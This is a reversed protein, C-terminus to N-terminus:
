GHHSARLQNSQQTSCLRHDVLHGDHHWDVAPKICYTTTKMKIGRQWGLQPSMVGLLLLFYTLSQQYTTYLHQKLCGTIIWLTSNIIRDALITHTSHNWVPSCYEATSNVLVLASTRLSHVSSGWTSEALKRLLACRSSLKTM